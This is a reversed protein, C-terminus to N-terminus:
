PPSHPPMGACDQRTARRGEKPLGPWASAPGCAVSDWVCSAVGVWATKSLARGAPRMKPNAGGGGGGRGGVKPLACKPAVEMSEEWGLETQGGGELMSCAHPHYANGRWDGHMGGHLLHLQALPLLGKRQMPMARNKLAVLKSAHM